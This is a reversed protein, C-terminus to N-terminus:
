STIISRVLEDDCTFNELVGTIDVFPQGDSEAMYYFGCRQCVKLKITPHVKGDLFKYNELKFQHDM